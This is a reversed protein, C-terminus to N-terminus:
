AVVASAASGGFQSWYEADAAAMEAKATALEDPTFAGHEAEWDAMEKQAIRLRLEHEAASAVLRSLPVGEEQAVANLEDLLREDLTITLKRTAM